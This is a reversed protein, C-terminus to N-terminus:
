KRRKVKLFIPEWTTHKCIDDLEEAGSIVQGIVVHKDPCDTNFWDLHTNDRLNFFLQSGIKGDGDHAMAITYKKNSTKSEFVAPIKGEADRVHEKGSCDTFKTEPVPGGCGRLAQWQKLTSSDREKDKAWKTFPCGFHAVYGPKIDHMSLKDYFGSKVLDLFNAAAVPEADEFIEVVISSFFEQFEVLVPM